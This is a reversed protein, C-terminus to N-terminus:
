MTPWDRELHQLTFPFNYNIKDTTESGAAGPTTLMISRFGVGLVMVTSNM